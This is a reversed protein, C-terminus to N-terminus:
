NSTLANYLTTLRSQIARQDLIPFEVQAICVGTELINLRIGKEVNFAISFRSKTIRGNNMQKIKKSLRALDLKKPSTPTIFYVGSGDRACGVEFSNETRPIIINQIDGCAECENRRKVKIHDFSLSSLEIFLLDNILLPRKKTIIRLVESVQVGAVISLISPEVGAVACRPLDTDNLGPYICELCASQNPLVTFATGYTQIAAGYVYPIRKKLCARNVLYRANISDMCDVIVDMGDVIGEVTYHTIPVPLPEINISPNLESLKEAAVEVKTRGIDKTSFLHQRHLDTLSVIDRDVLRLHGVGLGALQQAVPSGLGGIGVICVKSRKILEQGEVGIEPLVIQRSYRQIEDDSLQSM